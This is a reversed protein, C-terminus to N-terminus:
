WCVAVVGRGMGYRGELAVKEPLMDNLTAMVHVALPCFHPLDEERHVEMSKANYIVRLRHMGQLFRAKQVRPLVIGCLQIVTVGCEPGIEVKHLKPFLEPNNLDPFFKKYATHEDSLLSVTTASTLPLALPHAWAATHSGPDADFEDFPGTWALRLEGKTDKVAEHVAALFAPIMYVLGSAYAVTVEIRPEPGEEQVMLRNSREFRIGLGFPGARAGCLLSTFAPHHVPVPQNPLLVVTSMLLHKLNDCEIRSFIGYATGHPVLWMDVSTLDPLVVEHSTPFAEKEAVAWRLRGADVEASLDYPPSTIPYRPKPMHFSDYKGWCVLKLAQLGRTQTLLTSVFTHVAIRPGYPGIIALRTIAAGPINHPEVNALYLSRVAPASAMDFTQFWTPSQRQFLPGELHLDQVGPFPSMTQLWKLGQPGAIVHLTRVQKATVAGSVVAHFASLVAQKFVGQLSLMLHLPRTAAFVRVFSEPRDAPTLFLRHWLVSGAERWRHCVSDYVVIEAPKFYDSRSSTALLAMRLLELPLHQTIDM